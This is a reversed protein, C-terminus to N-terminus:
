VYRWCSATHGAGIQVVPPEEDCKEFREPCRDSFPCGVPRRLPSPPQGKISVLRQSKPAGLKPVSAVLARTYPHKPEGLIVGVDGIEVVRGAYMVAVRDCMRAVIGFDHTVFLIALGEDRQLDRLLRLYQLQVTVDLSTTPEDAILLQPECALAIAGGLRQRMGGSFQHPYDKLREAPAPIRVSKLLGVVRERLATGRLGQHIVLPEGVQAGVTLVPNLSSLPDQLIMSLRKGRYDRMERESLALLDVGGFVVKGGVIRGPEPVLRLLSLAVMSKGSGSEGVLGLTEGARVSFSVGDVARVVGRRLFFSTQLDTVEVLPSGPAPATVAPPQPDSATGSESM